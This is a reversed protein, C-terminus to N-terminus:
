HPDVAVTVLDQDGDVGEWDDIGRLVLEEGGIYVHTAVTHKAFRVLLLKLHLTVARHIELVSNIHDLWM